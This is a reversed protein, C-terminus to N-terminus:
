SSSTNGKLAGTFNLARPIIAGIDSEVSRVKYTAVQQAFPGLALALVAVIAGFSGLYRICTNTLRIRFM